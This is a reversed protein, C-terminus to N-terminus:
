KTRITSSRSVFRNARCIGQMMCTGSHCGVRHGCYLGNYVTKSILKAMTYAMKSPILNSVGHVLDRLNMVENILERWRDRVQFLHIWELRGGAM